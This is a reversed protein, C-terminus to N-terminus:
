LWPALAELAEEASGAGCRCLLKAALSKSLRHALLDRDIRGPALVLCNGGPLARSKGTKGLIGATVLEGTNELVICHFSPNTKQFDEIFERADDRAKASEGPSCRVAAKSLLGM